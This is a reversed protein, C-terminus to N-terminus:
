YPKKKKKKKLLKSKRAVKKAPPTKYDTFLKNLPLKKPKPPPKSLNDRMMKLYEQDM